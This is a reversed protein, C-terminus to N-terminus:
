ALRKEPALAKLAIVQRVTIGEETAAYPRMMLMLQKAEQVKPDARLRKAHQRTLGRYYDRLRRYNADILPMSEGERTPIDSPLHEFGPLMIQGSNPKRKRSARRLAAIWFRHLALSTLVQNERHKQVLREALEARPLNPNETLANAAIKSIETETQRVQRAAGSPLQRALKNDDDQM